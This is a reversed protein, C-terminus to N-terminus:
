RYMELRSGYFGWFLHPNQRLFHPNACDMFNFKGRFTPYNNWFGKNGRFDPLGSDIGM